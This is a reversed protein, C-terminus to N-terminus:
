KNFKHLCQNYDYMKWLNTYDIAIIKNWTSENLMKKLCLHFYNVLHGAGAAAVCGKKCYRFFLSWPSYVIIYTLYFLVFGLFLVPIVIQACVHLRATTLLMPQHKVPVPVPDNRDDSHTHTKIWASKGQPSVTQLVHKQEREKGKGKEKEKEEDERLKVSNIAVLWLVIVFKM